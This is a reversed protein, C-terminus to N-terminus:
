RGLQMNSCSPTSWTKILSEWDLDFGLVFAKLVSVLGLAQGGLGVELVAFSSFQVQLRVGWRSVDQLMKGSGEPPASVSVSQSVHHTQLGAPRWHLHLPHMGPGEGFSPAVHRRPLLDQRQVFVSTIFHSVDSHWPQAFIHLISLFTSHPPPPCMHFGNNLWPLFTGIFNLPPGCM